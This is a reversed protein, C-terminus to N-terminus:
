VSVRPQTGNGKERKNGKKASLEKKKEHENRCPGKYNTYISITNIKQTDKRAGSKRRDM